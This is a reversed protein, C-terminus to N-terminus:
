VQYISIGNGKVEDWVVSNDKMRYVKRATIKEWSSLGPQTVVQNLRDKDRM